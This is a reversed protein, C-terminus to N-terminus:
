KLCDRKNLSVVIFWTLALFIIIIALVLLAAGSELSVIGSWAARLRLFGLLIPIIIAAPVLFRAIFSGTFPSTLEGMLGKGPNVFFIALSLFLFNTATLIAMPIYSLTGFFTNVRYLYGIISLLAMFSIALAIFHAPIKKKRTEVNLLLLAIGSLIFNFATTPAMKNSINGNFGEPIPTNFFIADISINLESVRSIIRLLGILIIICALVRGWLIKKPVPTKTALLLFSAGSFIFAIATAPNMAFFVPIPGKLFNTTIQWGILAIIAIIIVVYAFYKAWQEMKNLLIRFSNVRESNAVLHNGSKM